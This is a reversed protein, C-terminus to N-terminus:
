DREIFILENALPLNSIWEIFTKWEPLRHSRRQFYIRRLTQYSLEQIREQELGEKIEAKVKQLEEGSLGKAEVHMTSESSLRESGIRYTDMEQWWYRPAIISCSVIIGRVVKAHEDGNKILAQLLRLDKPGLYIYSQTLLKNYGEIHNGTDSVNFEYGSKTLSDSKDKGKFPLRLAKIASVFGFLEITEIKM